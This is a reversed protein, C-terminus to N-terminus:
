PSCMVTPTPADLPVPPDGPSTRKEDGAPRQTSAALTRPEPTADSSAVTTLTARGRRPRSRWASKAPSWHTTVAYVRVSADSMRRPPASPSRKPRRRTNQKPRTQNAAADATHAAAGLMSTSTAARSTWPTPPASRVGPLRASSDAAKWGASRARAMPAHAPSPPTVVAMPGNRPPHSVPAAEHRQIKRSLRGRMATTSAMATRWTGSDRSGVAVPRISTGPATSPAPPRARM